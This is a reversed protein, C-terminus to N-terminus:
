AGRGEGSHYYAARRQHRRSANLRLHSKCCPCFRGEWKIWTDCTKCWRLGAGYYSHGKREGAFKKCQDRCSRM